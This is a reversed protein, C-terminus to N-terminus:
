VINKFLMRTLAPKSMLALVAIHHLINSIREKFSGRIYYTFPINGVILSDKVSGFGIPTHYENRSVILQQLTSLYTFRFNPTKHM